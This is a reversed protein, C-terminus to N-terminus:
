DMLAQWYNNNLYSNSFGSMEQNLYVGNAVIGLVNFDNFKLQKKVEELAEYDAVGTRVVLLLSDVLKGLIKTDSLGLMPPTDLFIYDYTQSVEVLLQKMRESDLLSM